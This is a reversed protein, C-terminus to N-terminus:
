RTLPQRYGTLDEIYVKESPDVRRRKLAAAFDEPALDYEGARGHISLDYTGDPNAEFVIAM